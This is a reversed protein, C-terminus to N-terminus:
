TNPWPHPHYEPPGLLRVVAPVFEPPVEFEPADPEGTVAGSVVATIREVEAVEPWRPLAPPGAVRCGVAAM